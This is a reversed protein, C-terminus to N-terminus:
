VFSTTLGKQKIDYCEELVKKITLRKVKELDKALNSLKIM